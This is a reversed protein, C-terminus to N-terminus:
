DAGDSRNVPALGLARALADLSSDGPGTGTLRLLCRTGNKDTFEGQDPDTRITEPDNNM